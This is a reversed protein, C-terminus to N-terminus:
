VLIGGNVLKRPQTEEGGIWLLGGVGRRVEQLPQDFPVGSMTDAHFTNLCIVAKLEGIAEGARFLAQRRKKLSSSGLEADAMLEDTGVGGSVVALHLAAVTFVLLTEIVRM